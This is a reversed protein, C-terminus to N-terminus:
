LKPMIYVVNNHVEYRYVILRYVVLPKAIKSFPKIEGWFAVDNHYFFSIHSVLSLM